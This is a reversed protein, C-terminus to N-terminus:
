PSRLFLSVAKHKQMMTRKKLDKLTEGRQHKHESKTTKEKEITRELTCLTHIITEKMKYISLYTRTRANLQEKRKKKLSQELDNFDHKRLM